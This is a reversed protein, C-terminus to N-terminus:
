AGALLNGTSDIGGVSSLGEQLTLIVQTDLTEGADLWAVRGAALASPFHLPYGTSPELVAVNLNRWGGHTAFLWCSPFVRLDFSLCSALGTATNTLACWGAALNTAYFFHTARAAPDPVQRLDRTGTGPWPFCIPLDALTGPFAPERVVTMPPFDIRHQPSVAFAPHLKLLFPFRGRTLNTLRYGIEVHISERRLLITKEIAFSSIPTHFRLRVGVQAADQFTEADWVGSWLEGHDPYSDGEIVTPEDTPFLEDMGGSWVDDYRAHIAHRAPMLHPHNWLLDADHPKYRIQWLKGGAEPLVVLHLWRNELIVARLGHLTWAISANLAPM